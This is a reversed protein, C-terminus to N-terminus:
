DDFIRKLIRNYIPFYTVNRGCQYVKGGWSPGISGISGSVDVRTRSRNGRGVEGTVNKGVTIRSNGSLGNINGDVNGKVEIIGNTINGYVNKDVTCSFLVDDDERLCTLGINGIVNGKVRVNAGHRNDGINGDVDKGIEIEARSDCQLAVSGHVEGTVSIKGARVRYGVIPGAYGTGLVNGDIITEGGEKDWGVMVNEGKLNGKIYTRGGKQWTNVNCYVDGIIRLEGDLQEHGIGHELGLPVDCLIEILGGEQEDGISAESGFFKDDIIGNIVAHGGKVNTLGHDLVKGEIILEGDEMYDGYGLEADGKVIIKGGKLGFGVCYDVNGDIILTGRELFTGIYNDFVYERTRLTITNEDKIVSNILASVFIGLSSSSNWEGFKESACFDSIDDGSFEIQLRRIQDLASQYEDKISSQKWNRWDGFVYVLVNRSFRRKYELLDPTLGRREQFDNILALSFINSTNDRGSITERKKEEVFDIIDDLKGHAHRVFLLADEYMEVYKKESIGSNWGAFLAGLERQIYKNKPDFNHAIHFHGAAKIYDDVTRDPKRLLGKAKSAYEAAIKPNRGETQHKGQIDRLKDELSTM